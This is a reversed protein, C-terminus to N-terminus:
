DNLIYGVLREFVYPFKDDNKCYDLLAEYLDKTNKKLQKSTVTFQCGPKFPFITKAGNCLENYYKQVSLGPHDPKGESDSIKTTNGFSYFDKEIEKIDSMFTNAHDFPNGQCFIYQGELNDYNEIIYHLYSYPERGINPVDKGKQIVVLKMDKPLDKTWSIDERYKAVIITRDM